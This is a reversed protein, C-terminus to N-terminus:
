KISWQDFLYGRTQGSSHDNGLTSHELGAHDVLSPVHHYTPWGLRQLAHFITGDPSREMKDPDKTLVEKMAMALLPAQRARVVVAGGWTNVSPQISVLGRAARDDHAINQEIAWLSLASVSPLKDMAVQARLTADPAFVLDDDLVCVLDDDLVCVLDDDDANGRDSLAYLTSIVMRTPGDKLHDRFIGISHAGSDVLSALTKHLLPVRDETPLHIIGFRIM